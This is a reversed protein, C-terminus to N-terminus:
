FKTQLRFDFTDGGGQSTVFEAHNWVATLQIGSPLMYGVVPGFGVYRCISGPVPHGNMTDKVVQDIQSVGIGLTWAGITKEATYDILFNGGTRYEYNHATTSGLPQGFRLAVSLTWGNNLYTLGLSPMFTSYGNASPAGGNKMTGNVLDTPTNTGDNLFFTTAVRVFLHHPLSWSLM